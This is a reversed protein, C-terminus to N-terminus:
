VLPYGLRTLEQKIVGRRDAPVEAEMEAVMRVGMSSLTPAIEQMLAAHKLRLLLLREQTPHPLLSLQGYREVLQLIEGLLAEPVDWRSLSQLSSCIEAASM